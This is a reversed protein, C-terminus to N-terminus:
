QHKTEMSNLERTYAELIEIFEAHPLTTAQGSYENEVTVGTRTISVWCADGGSSWEQTPQRAHDLLETLMSRDDVIENRLLQDVPKYREPVHVTIAGRESRGFRIEIM